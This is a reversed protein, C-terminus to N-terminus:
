DQVLTYGKLKIEKHNIPNLEFVQSKGNSTNKVFETFDKLDSKFIEGIRFIKEDECTIIVKFNREEEEEEEYDDNEQKEVYGQSLLESVTIPLDRYISVEGNTEKETFEKFEKFEGKVLTSKVFTKKSNFVFIVNETGKTEKEIRIAEKVLEKIIANLM